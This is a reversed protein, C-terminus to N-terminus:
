PEHPLTARNRLGKRAGNAVVLGLLIAAGIYFKASLRETDPFILAGLALAYVTELNVCVAITFPSLTRLVILAWVQPIVTCCVGLVVLWWVDALSLQFPSVLEGRGAGDDEQWSFQLTNGDVTGDIRGDHYAYTGTVHTGDQQLTMAGWTSAYTGSVDISAAPAVQAHAATAFGGLFVIPLIRM